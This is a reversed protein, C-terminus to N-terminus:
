DIQTVTISLTFSIDTSFDSTDLEVPLSNNEVFKGKSNKDAALHGLLTDAKDVWENENTEDTFKWEWTLQLADTFVTTLNTNPAFDQSLTNELYEKIESLTGSKLTVGNSDKLTFVIPHYDETLNFSANKGDTTLEATTFDRYIGARLFVDGTVVLKFAVNVAVEPTGSVNVNLAGDSKTGPAVLDGSGKSDVSCTITAGKGSDDTTYQTKFLDDTSVFAHVGFKAVRATEAAESSTVYKAFTGGVFCSTILTLALLIGAAKLTWNKKM